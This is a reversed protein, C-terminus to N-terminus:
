LVELVFPALRERGAIKVQAWVTYVGPEEAFFMFDLEPATNDLELDLGEKVPHMHAFGSRESDFAVLHAYAGMVPELLVPQGAVTNRVELSILGPKRARVGGVPPRMVFHYDDVTSDLSLSREGNEGTGSVLLDAVAQVPRGTAVPVLDAFFRYNGGKQPTFTFVFEGPVATPEPHKHHYDELTPDIILLHFKETHTEQLDEYAVPKGGPRSLALKVRAEEGPTLSSRPLLRMVLPSRLQTVQTFGLSSFDCLEPSADGTVQRLFAAPREPAFDPLLHFFVYIGAMVATIRLIRM